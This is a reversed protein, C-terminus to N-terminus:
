VIWCPVPRRGPWVQRGEPLRWGPAPVQEPDTPRRQWHFFGTRRLLATSRDPTRPRRWALGTRRPDWYEAQPQPRNQSGAKGLCDAVPGQPGAPRGPWHLPGRGPRGTGSIVAAPILSGRPCSPLVYCHRSHLRGAPLCRKPDPRWIVFRLLCPETSAVLRRPPVALQRGTPWPRSCRSAPWSCEQWRWTRAFCRKM